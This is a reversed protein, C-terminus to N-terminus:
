IVRKVGIYTHDFPPDDWLKSLADIDSLVEEPSREEM